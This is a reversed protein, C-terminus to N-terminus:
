PWHARRARDKDSSSITGTKSLCEDIGVLACTNGCPVDAVFETKRGMMIVTRQVTKEILDSNSGPQYNPGMVRVKQGMAIKGSFVRGFAYFRGKDSTPVMKSVYMMLPANSDCNRMGALCEDEESGEYLYKARYKQAKRPSPLHHIMMELLADAANIWKQLITRMLKKDTLEKEESTLKVNMTELLKNILETNAELCAKAVKIIPDIIFQVYARPLVGGDKDVNSTRWVKGKPDYFNDGWLRHM